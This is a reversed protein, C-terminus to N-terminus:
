YLKYFYFLLIWCVKSKQSAKISSFEIAPSDEVKDDGWSRKVPVPTLEEDSDEENFSNINGYGVSAITPTKNTAMIKDFDKLSWESNDIVKAKSEVDETKKDNASRMFKMNMVRSSLGSM